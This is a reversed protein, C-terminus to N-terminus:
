KELKQRQFNVSETVVKLNKEAEHILNSIESIHKDLRDKTSKSLYIADDWENEKGESTHTALLIPEESATKEPDLRSLWEWLEQQEKTDYSQKQMMSVQENSQSARGHRPIINCIEDLQKEIFSMKRAIFMNTIVMLVLCFIMFHSASASQTVRTIHSILNGMFGKTEPRSVTDKDEQQVTAKASRRRKGKQRKKRETKEEYAGFESPHEKFYTRLAADLDKYYTQQGEISAKEITSKLWSSKSFEVAVTVMVRVKQKGAWTFCTRTKCCFASGSPVDPTNTTILATVYNDFDEHLIEQTLYCKTSKPGLSNNLPKIYSLERVSKVDGEGPKWDGMSLETSKQNDVLFTELFDSHFLAKYIKELSGRYTMDLVTNPYHEQCGCKTKEHLQNSPEENAKKTGNVSVQSGKATKESAKNSQATSSATEPSDQHNTNSESGNVDKTTTQVTSQKNTDEPEIDDGQSSTDSDYDSDDDEAPESEEEEDCEDIDDEKPPFLDPRCNHWIEVMLDYAQDRSLFSAFFYKASETSIQIANPIFYATSKKEINTIDAFAIVLNTVWGFINANFCLHNESVYIRGQLLIEKQLACGYDEILSDDEPVSRFLSHFDQNRKVSALDYTSASSPATYSNGGDISSRDGNTNDSNQRPKIKQALTTSVKQITPNEKIENILNSTLSSARSRSKKKPATASELLSIASSNNVKPGSQPSHDTTSSMQNPSSARSIEGEKFFDHQVNVSPEIPTPESVQIPPVNPSGESNRRINPPRVLSIDLAPPRAGSVTNSHSRRKSATTDNVNLSDM